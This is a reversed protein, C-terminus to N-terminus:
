QILDNNWAHWFNYCLFYCYEEIKLTEIISYM